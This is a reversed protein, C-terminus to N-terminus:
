VPPKHSASDGDSQQSERSFTKWRWPQVSSHEARFRVLNEVTACRVREGVLFGECSLPSSWVYTVDGWFLTELRDGGPQVLVLEVMLDLCAYARKHPFRKAPIETFGLAPLPNDHELMQWSPAVLLLDIDSHRRSGSVGLAEEAWGGFLCTTFGAGTLRGLISIVTNANNDM